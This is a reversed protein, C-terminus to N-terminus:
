KNIKQIYYKRWENTKYDEKKHAYENRKPSISYSCVNIYEHQKPSNGFELVM